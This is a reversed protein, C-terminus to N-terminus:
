WGGCVMFVVQEAIRRASADETKACSADTSIDFAAFANRVESVGSCFACAVNGNSLSAFPSRTFQCKMGRSRFPSGILSMVAGCTASARASKFVPRLSSPTFFASVIWLRSLM